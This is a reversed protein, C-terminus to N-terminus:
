KDREGKKRGVVGERDKKQYVGPAMVRRHTINYKCKRWVDASSVKM